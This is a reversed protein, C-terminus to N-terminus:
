ILAGSKQLASALEATLTAPPTASIDAKVTVVIDCGPRVTQWRERLIAALRRRIRNRVVASKSVKKSVVIAARSAPRGIALTKVQINAGGGYRGQRYVKAIDREKRLRQDRALM